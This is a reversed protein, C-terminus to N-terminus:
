LNLVQRSSQSLMLLYFQGLMKMRYEAMFTLCNLQKCLRLRKQLVTYTKVLTDAVAGGLPLSNSGGTKIFHRFLFIYHNQEM